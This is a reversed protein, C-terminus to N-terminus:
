FFGNGDDLLQDIFEVNKLRNIDNDDIIRNEEKVEEISTMPFTENIKEFILIMEATFESEAANNTKKNVNKLFDIWGTINLVIIPVIHPSSQGDMKETIFEDLKDMNDLYILGQKEADELLDNPGSYIFNNKM